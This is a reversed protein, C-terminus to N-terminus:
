SSEITPNSLSYVKGDKLPWEERVKMGTKGGVHKFGLKELVRASAANEVFLCAMVRGIKVEEFAVKLVVRAARPVIGQGRLDPDLWYGMEFANEPNPLTESVYDRTAFLGIVGILPANPDPRIAFNLVRGEDKLRDLNRKIFAEADSLLYPSPVSGTTLYIQPGRIPDSLVTFIQDADSGRLETLYLEPATDTAPIPITRRPSTTM